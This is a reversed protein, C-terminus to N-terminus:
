DPKQNGEIQQLLFAGMHWSHSVASFIQAWFRASINFIHELWLSVCVCELCKDSLMKYM